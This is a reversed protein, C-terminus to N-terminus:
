INKYINYTKVTSANCSTVTPNTEQTRIMGLNTSHSVTLIYLYVFPSKGENCIIRKRPNHEVNLPTKSKKTKGRQMKADLLLSCPSWVTKDFFDGLTNGLGNKTLILESRKGKCFLLWVIQAGKSIKKFVAWHFCDGL